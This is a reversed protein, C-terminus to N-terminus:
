STSGDPLLHHAQTHRRNLGQYHGLDKEAM